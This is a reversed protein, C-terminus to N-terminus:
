DKMVFTRLPFQFFKNCTQEFLRASSLIRFDFPLIKRNRELTRARTCSLLIRAPNRVGEFILEFAFQIM